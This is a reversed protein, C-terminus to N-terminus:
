FLNGSFKEIHGVNFVRNDSLYHIYGIFGCSGTVSNVNCMGFNMKEPTWASLSAQQKGGEKCNPTTLHRDM